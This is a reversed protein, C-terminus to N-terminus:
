MRRTNKMELKKNSLCYIWSLGINKLQMKLNVLTIIKAKSAKIMKLNLKVMLVQMKHHSYKPNRKYLNTKPIEQKSKSNTCKVTFNPKQTLKTVNKRNSANETLELTDM